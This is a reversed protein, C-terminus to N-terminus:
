SARASVEDDPNASCGCTPWSTRSRAGTTSAPARGGGQLPRGRAGAGGGPGPEPRQDPLLRRRRRLPPRRTHLRGIETPWGPRRTTSTRPGTASSRARRREGDTWLEKPVRTVNNAIVANAADLITQTSRYNQELPIVAADPFAKEFELINRIDAGRFAYISQDSDGVVCINRHEAALLM